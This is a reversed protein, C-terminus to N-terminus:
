RYVEGRFSKETVAEFATYFSKRSKFGLELSLSEVTKTALYGSNLEQLAYRIRVRNKFEPWSFRQETFFTDWDSCSILSIEALNQKTFEQFLVSLVKVDPDLLFGEIVNNKSPAFFMANSIISTLMREDYRSILVVYVGLAVSVSSVVFFSFQASKLGLANVVIALLGGGMLIVQLWPLGMYIYSPGSFRASRGTRILYVAHLLSFITGLTLAGTMTGIIHNIKIFEGAFLHALNKEYLASDAMIGYTCAASYVPMLYLVYKVVSDGKNKFLANSYQELCTPLAVLLPFCLPYLVQMLDRSGLGVAFLYFNIIWLIAVYAYLWVFKWKFRLLGYALTATLLLLMVLVGSVDSNM